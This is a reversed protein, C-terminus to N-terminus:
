MFKQYKTNDNYSNSNNLKLKGKKERFLLSNDHMHSSKWNVSIYDKRPTVLFILPFDNPKKKRRVSVEQSIGNSVSAFVIVFCLLRWKQKCTVYLCIRICEVRQDVSDFLMWLSLLISVYLIRVIHVNACSWWNEM